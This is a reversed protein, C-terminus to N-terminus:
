KKKKKRVVRYPYPKCRLGVAAAIFIRMCYYNNPITINHNIINDSKCCDCNRTIYPIGAATWIEEAYRATHCFSKKKWRTLAVINYLFTCSSRATKVLLTRLKWMARRNKFLKLSCECWSHFHPTQLSLYTKPAPLKKQLSQIALCFQKIRVCM